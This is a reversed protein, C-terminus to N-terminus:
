VIDRGEIPMMRLPQMPVVPDELGYDADHREELGTDTCWRAGYSGYDATQRAAQSLVCPYFLASLILDCWGSGPILYRNRIATRTRSLMVVVYTWFAVHLVYIAKKPDIIRSPHAEDGDNNVDGNDWKDKENNSSSSRAYDGNIWLLYSICVLLLYYVSFVLFVGEFTSRSRSPSGCRCSCYNLNLRTMVQSLIFCSCCPLLSGLFSPHCPGHDCCGCLGANWYIERRPLRHKRSSSAESASSPSSPWGSDTSRVDDYEREYIRYPASFSTGKKVGGYPAQTVLVTGDGLDVRLTEGTKLDRPCDHVTAELSTAWGRGRGGGDDDGDDDNEDGDFTVLTHCEIGDSLHIPRSSPSSTLSLSAELSLSSLPRPQYPTVVPITNPRPKPPPKPRLCFNKPTTEAASPHFSRRVPTMPSSTSAAAAACPPPPHQSRVVGGSAEGSKAEENGFEDDEEEEEDDLDDITFLVDENVGGGTSADFSATATKTAVTSIQEAQSLGAAADAHDTM